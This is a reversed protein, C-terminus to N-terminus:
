KPRVFFDGSHPEGYVPKEATRQALTLEPQISDLSYFKCKSLEGMVADFQPAREGVCLFDNNFISNQVEHALAANLLLYPLRDAFGPSALTRPLSGDSQLAVFDTLLSKITEMPFKGIGKVAWTKSWDRMSTQLMGFRSRLESDPPPNWRGLAKGQMLKDLLERVQEESQKVKESLSTKDEELTSIMISAELQVKNYAARAAVADAEAQRAKHDAQQAKQQTQANLAMLQKEAARFDEDRKRLDSRLTRCVDEVSKLRLEASEARKEAERVNGRLKRLQVEAADRLYSSQQQATPGEHSKSLRRGNIDTVPIYLQASTVAPDESKRQSQEHREM